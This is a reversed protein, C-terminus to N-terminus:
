ELLAKVKERLRRTNLDVKEAFEVGLPLNMKMKEPLKKESVALLNEPDLYHESDMIGSLDKYIYERKTHVILQPEQLKKIMKESIEKLLSDSLFEYTYLSRKFEKDIDYMSKREGRLFVFEPQIKKASNKSPVYIIPQYWVSYSKAEEDTIIIDPPTITPNFELEQLKREGKRKNLEIKGNEFGKIISLITKIEFKFNKSDTEGKRTERIKRLKELEDNSTDLLFREDKDFMNLLTQM